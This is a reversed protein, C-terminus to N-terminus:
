ALAQYLRSLSLVACPSCKLLFSPFSLMQVNCQRTVEDRVGKRHTAPFPFLQQGVCSIGIADAIFYNLEIVRM